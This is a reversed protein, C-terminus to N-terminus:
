AESFSSEEQTLPSFEEHQESESVLEWADKQKLLAEVLNIHMSHGAKAAVLHGLLRHPLFALDGVADLIKHRVFEDPFRLPNNIVKYDDLIIANELSGGRALNNRRLLEVERLFGFTRAPAIEESFTKDNIEFSVSM